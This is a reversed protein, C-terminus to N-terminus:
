AASERASLQIPALLDCLHCPGRRGSGPHNVDHSGCFRMLEKSFSAITQSMFPIGRFLRESKDNHQSGAPQKKDNEKIFFVFLLSTCTMDALQQRPPCPREGLSSEIPLDDDFILYSFLYVKLKSPPYGM